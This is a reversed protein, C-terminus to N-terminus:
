YGLEYYDESYILYEEFHKSNIVIEEKKGTTHSYGYVHIHIYHDQKDKQVVTFETGKKFNIIYDSGRQTAHFDIIAHYINGVIISSVLVQHSFDDLNIDLEKNNKSDSINNLKTM